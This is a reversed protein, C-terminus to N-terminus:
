AKRVFTKSLFVGLWYLFLMPVAMAIQSFADPPTLVAAIIFIAVVAYRWGRVYAKPEILGVKSLALMVLPLQFVGGMVVSMLLVFNVATSLPITNRVLDRYFGGFILLMYLGYKLVVLYAFLAGSLFLVVSLPLFLYIIRREHAYLGSAVFLWMQWLVWPSAIVAAAVFDAKLSTVFAEAPSLVILLPERPPPAEPPAGPVAAANSREVSDVADYVPQVLFRVIPGTFYLCGVLVVALGLLSLIVRRRLEELHEGLSMKVEDPNDPFRAM